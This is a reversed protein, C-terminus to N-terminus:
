ERSRAESYAAAVAPGAVYNRFLSIRLPSDGAFERQLADLTVSKRAEDLTEGRAVAAGTMDLVSRFLRGMRKVYDTDRM